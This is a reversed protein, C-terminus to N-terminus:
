ALPIDHNGAFMELTMKNALRCYANKSSFLGGKTDTSSMLPTQLASQLTQMASQISMRRRFLSRSIYLPVCFTPDRIYPGSGYFLSGKGMGMLPPSCFTDM